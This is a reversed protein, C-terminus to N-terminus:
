YIRINQRPVGETRGAQTAVRAQEFQPPDAGSQSGNLPGPWCCVLRRSFVRILDEKVTVRLWALDPLEDM